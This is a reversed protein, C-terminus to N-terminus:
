KGLYRDTERQEAPTMFRYLLPFHPSAALYRLIDRDSPRIGRARLMSLMMPAWAEPHYPHQPMAPMEVPAAAPSRPPLPMLIAQPPAKSEQPRLLAEREPLPRRPGDDTLLYQTTQSFLRQMFAKFATVNPSVEEGSAYRVDRRVDEIYVTGGTQISYGRVFKEELRIRMPEVPKRLLEKSGPDLHDYMQDPLWQTDLEIRTGSPDLRGFRLLLHRLFLKDFADLNKRALFRDALRILVTDAGRNSLLLVQEFLRDLERNMARAQEESHRRADLHFVGYAGSRLLCNRDYFTIRGLGGFPLTLSGQEQAYQGRLEAYAALRFLNDESLAYAGLYQNILAEFPFPSDLESAQAPRPLCLLIAAALRVLARPLM